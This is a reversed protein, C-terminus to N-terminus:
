LRTPKSGFEFDNKMMRVRVLFSSHIKYGNGCFIYRIISKQVSILYPKFAVNAM